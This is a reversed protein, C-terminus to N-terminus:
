VNLWEPLDFSLAQYDARYIERLLVKQEKPVNKFYEETPASGILSNLKASHQNVSDYSQPLVEPSVNLKRMFIPIDEMFHSSHGIFDYDIKCLECLDVIPKWHEDRYANYLGYPSMVVWAIFQEFSLRFGDDWAEKGKEPIRKGPNNLALIERTVKKYYFQIKMSHLKNKWASVLRDMPDRAFM